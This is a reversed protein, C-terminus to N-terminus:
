GAVTPVGALTTTGPPAVVAVNGIVVKGTETSISAAIRACHLATSFSAYTRTLGLRGVKVAIVKFGEVTLPPLRVVPVSVKPPGMGAVRHGAPGLVTFTHILSGSTAPIRDPGPAIAAPAVLAVNWNHVRPGALVRVMVTEAAKSVAVSLAGSVIL